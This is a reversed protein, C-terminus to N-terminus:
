SFLAVPLPKVLKAHREICKLVSCYRYKAALFRKCTSATTAMVVAEAARYYRMVGHRVVNAHQKRTTETLLQFM